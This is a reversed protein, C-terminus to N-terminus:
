AGLLDVRQDPRFKITVNDGSEHSYGRVHVRWGHEGKIEEVSKVELTLAQGKHVYQILDSVEVSDASITDIVESM